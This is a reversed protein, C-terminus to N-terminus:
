PKESACRNLGQLYPMNKHSVNDISQSDLSELKMVCHAFLHTQLSSLLDHLTEVPELNIQCSPTLPCSSLQEELQDLSSTQFSSFCQLYVILM